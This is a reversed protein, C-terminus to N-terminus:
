FPTQFPLILSTVAANPVVFCLRANMTKVVEEAEEGQAEGELVKGTEEKGREKYETGQGHDQRRFTRKL